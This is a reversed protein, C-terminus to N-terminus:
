RARVSGDSMWLYQGVYALPYVGSGSNTVGTRIDHEIPGESTSAYLTGGFLGRVSFQQEAIDAPPMSYVISGDRMDRVVFARNEASVTAALPMTPDILIEKSPMRTLQGSRLDVAILSGASDDFTVYHSAIPTFSRPEKCGDPCAILRDGDWTVLGSAVSFGSAGDFEGVQDGHELWLASDVGYVPEGDDKTWVHTGRVVDVGILRSLSDGNTGSIHVAIVGATSTGGLSIEYGAGTYVDTRTVVRATGEVSIGLIASTSREEDANGPASPEVGTEAGEPTEIRIIGAIVPTSENFTFSYLEDLVREDPLLETADLWVVGVDPVVVDVPGPAGTQGEFIAPKLFPGFTTWEEPAYATFGSAEDASVAGIAPTERTCGVLVCCAVAALAMTFGRVSLRAVSRM